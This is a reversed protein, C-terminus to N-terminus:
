MPVQKFSQMKFKAKFEGNFKAEKQYYKQIEFNTLSHSLM